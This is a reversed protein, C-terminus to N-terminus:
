SVPDLNQDTCGGMFLTWDCKKSTWFGPYDFAGLFVSDPGISGHVKTWEWQARCAANATEYYVGDWEWGLVGEGAAKAPTNACLGACLLLLIQGLQLPARALRSLLSQRGSEHLAM